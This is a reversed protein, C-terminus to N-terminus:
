SSTGYPSNVGIKDEQEEHDYTYKINVSNWYLKGVNVDHASLLKADPHKQIIKEWLENAKETFSQYGETGGGTGRCISEEGIKM